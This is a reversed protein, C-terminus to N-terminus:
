NNAGSKLMLGMSKRGTKRTKPKTQYSVFDDQRLSTQKSIEVGSAAPGDSDEDGDDEVVAEVDVDQLSADEEEDRKNYHMASRLKSSFGFKKSRGKSLKETKDKERDKEDRDKDKSKGRSLKEAKDKEKEDRDKGKGGRADALNAREEGDKRGTVLEIRASKGKARDPTQVPEAAGGRRERSGAAAGAEAAGRVPMAEEIRAKSRTKTVSVGAGAAVAAAVEAGAIERAGLPDSSADRLAPTAGGGAAFDGISQSIGEMEAAAAAGFRSMSKRVGGKKTMQSPSHSIGGPPLTLERDRDGGGVGGGAPYVKRPSSFSMGSSTPSGMATITLSLKKTVRNQLQKDALAKADPKEKEPETPEEVGWPSANANPIEEDKEKQLFSPSRIKQIAFSANRARQALPRGAQREKAGDARARQLGGAGDPSRPERDREGGRGGEGTARVDPGDVTSM